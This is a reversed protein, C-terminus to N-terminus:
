IKLPCGPWIPKVAAPQQCQWPRESRPSLACCLPTELELWHRVLLQRPPLRACHSSYFCIQSRMIESSILALPKNGTWLSFHCFWTQHHVDTTGDGPPIINNTGAQAVYHSTAEFVLLPLSLSAVGPPFRFSYSFTKNTTKRKSFATLMVSVSLWSWRCTWLMFCRLDQVGHLAEWGEWWGTDAPGARRTWGQGACLKRIVSASLWTGVQM